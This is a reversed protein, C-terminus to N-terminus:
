RSAGNASAGNASAGNAARRCRLLLFDSGYELEAPGQAPTEEVAFTEWGALALMGRYADESRHVEARERGTSVMTKSYEFTSRSQWDPPLRRRQRVSPLGVARPNCVALLLEGDAAVLEAARRLLSSAEHDRLICLVLSCVVVDFREKELSEFAAVDLFSIASAEHGAAAAAEQEHQWRDRLAPDPDHGFVRRGPRALRGVLRGTGCGLDLITEAGRAEVMEVLRVDVLAENPPPSVAESFHAFGEMEPIGEDEISRRMLSKLEPHAAHRLTLFARRAMRRFGVETFPHLDSGYDILKVVGDAVVLNDPHINSCVLGFRRCDRLLDILGRGHGGRYPESPEYPYSLVVRMGSRRVSSIPYLATAGHWRGVQSELFALSDGPERTKWYDVCKFVTAGDTFVVAESGSGLHGLAMARTSDIGCERAVWARANDIRQHNVWPVTSRPAQDRRRTVEAALGTLYERVVQDSVDEVQSRFAALRSLDYEQRLVELLSKLGEVARACTADRLWWWGEHPDVYRALARTLGAARHFALVFAATRERLYKRFKRVAYSVDQDSLATLEPVGPHGEGRHDELKQLFLTELASYLAFGQIDRCLKDLDLTGRVERSRDQRVALPVKVVTRGGVYRNLLSWVMDSRRTSQGEIQPVANSFDRLAETDFVFTNGGRHVSPRRADVPDVAADLVLPRFVQEGALIRPLRGVMELFAARVSAEPMSAVFWFPTELHDTERRSLDYYYDECRARLDMNEPSRDPFRTDPALAGLWALNHHADVLQTRMCSAFPLPPADTVAGIAVDVDLARLRLLTDVLPLPAAVVGTDPRWTLTELQVDEDLIWVVAGPRRLALEYLYVQLMTRATAISVRDCGREFPAGFCGAFADARQQEPPIVFCGLGTERASTVVRMLAGVHESSGNELLLVEIHGLRPDARLRSVADILPRCEAARSSTVIVGVILSLSGDVVPERTAQPRATSIATPEEWGFLRRARETFAAVEDTTMRSSYKRFFATLGQLKTESAANSLRPRGPEAYHHVLPEPIRSYRVGGLDALRICLDRDTTSPLAEDFLGAALLTSLRVFLNSGQIHPNTTLFQRALLAEPATLVAGGGTLSEHRVLDAAVVDLDDSAATTACRALYSPEWRDDDDLIAVYIDRPDEVERQLWDLGVNWAGSAGPTRDNELYKVRMRGTGADTVVRRNDDRFRRDSDDVVVLFDPRRTQAIVSPLARSALESTRNKTAILVALRTECRPREDTEPM